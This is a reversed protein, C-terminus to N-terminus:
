PSSIEYFKTASTQGADTYTGIANTFVLGSVLNTFPQSLNTSSWVSYTYNSPVATWKLIVSNTGGAGTVAAGLTGVNTLPPLSAPAVLNSYVTFSIGITTDDQILPGAISYAFQPIPKGTVFNTDQDSVFVTYMEGTNNTIIYDTGSAFVQGNTINEFYLNTIVVVSGEVNTSLFPSLPATDNGWPLLIPTPLPNNTGLITDVFGTGGEIVDIEYNDAFSSLTGTATVLDGLAPRFDSGDTVFLNIGGTSDQLYYSATDGTTQNTATTIVGTVNFLTTGDSPEYTIPNLLSRLYGITVSKPGNVTLVANSSPTTFAGNDGTAIVYYTGSENTSLGTLTLDPTTVGLPNGDFYWAYTIPGTGTALSTFTLSGGESNTTNAAPQVSFVPATPTTDVLVVANSSQVSGAAGSVVVHYTGSNTAVLPNLTLTPTASGTVSYGDSLALGNQYWAYTLGTGATGIGSAAVEMVYPNGSFNTAGVPQLGIVPKAPTIGATVVPYGSGPGNWDFSVVLNDLEMVGEGLGGSERQRLGFAAMPLAPNFSDLAAGSSVGGASNAAVDGLSAPNVAMGSFLAVPNLNVFFVVQYDIGPALDLPVVATPGTSSTGTSDTQGNAIGLRYTGPFAVPSINPTFGAQNSTLTFIRGYFGFNTDELNAFYTGGPNSPLTSLNIIFSAWMVTGREPQSFLSQADTTFNSENIEVRGNTVLEPNTGNIDTWPSGADGFLDGNPYSFTDFLLVPTYSVVTAASTISNGLGNSVVVSYSASVIVGSNAVNLSSTTAGAVAVGNSLWQYSLTPAGAATVSLTAGASAGPVNTTGVPQTIIVPDIVTLTASNNAPFSGFSNSAIVTYTGNFTAYAPSITLAATSSGSVSGGDSLAVGNLQWIYTLASGVASVNFTATGGANVTVSTPAKITVDLPAGPAQVTLLAGSSTATGYNNSVVASVTTGNLDITVPNLTFSSGTAGSVAVGNTHWQYDLVPTGSAGVTFTVSGGADQVLPAPQNTIVPPVGPVFRVGRFYNSGSLSSSAQALLTFSSGPGSDVISILRNGTAESTTAYVVPPNQTFDATVGGANTASGTGGVLLVYNSVWTGANNTYKIIGGLNGDAVYCTTNGSDFVFDYPGSASGPQAVTNVPANTPPGIPPPPSAPGTIAFIGHTSSGTSVYLTNNYINLVRENGTGTIGVRVNVGTSGPPGVYIVGSDYTPSGSLSGSGSVWFANTGDFAAGRINFENFVNTNAIPMAYNGYGDITVVARPANSSVSDELINTGVNLPLAANYGGLVLYQGNASLSMFGETASGDLVFANPGTSPLPLTSVQTGGTTFQLISVTNGSDTSSVYQGPGGVSVVVLNGPIFYNPNVSLTANSSTATGYGNAVVVDVATGNEFTTVSAYTLSATTAGPVPAGNTYWQYSLTPSGLATVTFTASGDASRVVSAPQSTILPASGPVFRVGRFTNTSGGVGSVNLNSALNIVIPIAGTDQFMVLRNTIAEATTAYVVPPTQTFDATVSIAHQGTSATYGANTPYITYNSVWGTGNNTFKVIGFDYDALYAITGAPNIALDSPTSAAATGAPFPLSATTLNTPLNGSFDALMFAGAQPYVATNSPYGLAYLANGYIVLGRGGSVVGTLVENTAPATATGCYVVGYAAATAGTGQAWFNSGDSAAGAITFTNFMNSNVIPLAYNGYGDITAIARPVNTSSAFAFNAPVGNSIYPASTNFGGIVLHTGDPTLTMLGDYPEGDMILANPGNSPIALSSVLTGSTTYQDIWVSNGNDSTTVSEGPGGIRVVALNGNTFYQAQASFLCAVLAFVSFLTTKMHSQTTKKAVISGFIRQGGSNFM